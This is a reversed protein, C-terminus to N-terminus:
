ELFVGYDSSYFADRDLFGVAGLEDFVRELISGLDAEIIRLSGDHQAVCAELVGPHLDGVTSIKVFRRVMAILRGVLKIPPRAQKM